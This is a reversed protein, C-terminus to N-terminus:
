KERIDNHPPIQQVAVGSWPHKRTKVPKRCVPCVIKGDELVTVKNFGWMGLHVTDGSAPCKNSLAM